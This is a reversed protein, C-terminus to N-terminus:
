IKRVIWCWAPLKERTEPKMESEILALPVWVKAKLPCDCIDCVGLETDAFTSLQQEKLRGMLAQLERAVVQNFRQGFNGGKVNAQCGACISARTEATNKAVPETGFWKAWLSAGAITNSILKKAGAALSLARESPPLSKPSVADEGILFAEGGPRNKLRAITYNELDAAVSANDTKFNHQPNARRHDIIRAVTDDFSLHRPADWNTEAQRYRFGGPPFNNRSKLM